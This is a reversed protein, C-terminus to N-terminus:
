VDKEFAPVIIVLDYTQLIEPTIADEANGANAFGGLDYVQNMAPNTHKDIGILRITQKM